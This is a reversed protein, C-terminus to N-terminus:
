EFLYTYINKFKTQSEDGHLLNEIEYPTYRLFEYNDLNRPLLLIQEKIKSHEINYLHLLLGIMMNLFKNFNKDNEPVFLTPLKKYKKLAQFDESFLNMNIESSSLADRFNFTFLNEKENIEEKAFLQVKEGDVVRAELKQNYLPNQRIKENLMTKIAEPPYDDWIRQFTLDKYPACLTKNSFVDQCYGSNDYAMDRFTNFKDQPPGDEEQCSTLAILVLLFFAKQHFSIM